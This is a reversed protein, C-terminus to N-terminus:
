DAPPSIESNEAQNTVLNVLKDSYELLLSVVPSDDAFKDLSFLLPARAQHNLDPSPSEEFPSEEFDSNLEHIRSQMNQFTRMLKNYSNFNSSSTGDDSDNLVQLMLTMMFCLIVDYYYLM